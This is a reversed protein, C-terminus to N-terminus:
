MLSNHSSTSGMDVSVRCFITPSFAARTYPRYFPPKKEDYGRELRPCARRLYPDMNQIGAEAPIVVPPITSYTVGGICYLRSSSVHSSTEISLDGQNRATRTSLSGRFALQEGTLAGRHHQAVYQVVFPLLRGPLYFGRAAGGTVQM